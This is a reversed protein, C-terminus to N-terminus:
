KKNLEYWMKLFVGNTWGFGSQNDYEGGGGPIDPHVVDYKEMMKGSEFFVKQNLSIWRKAITKATEDFGYNKLGKYTSWQLPAWANPFDWQQDADILTTVVGGPFLFKSKIVQHCKEAQMQDAIGIFLPFIGALTWQASQTKTNIQYDFYYGKENSWFYKQIMEKRKEALKKFKLANPQDKQYSYTQSITLELHYMLANLDVPLFETTMITTMNRGDAFWRSSFDWGSACAARVDEFISADRKSAHLLEIDHKYSEPRPGPEEDWYRNLYENKEIEVVRNGSMYYQYEILMQPLYKLLISTDQKTGALLQVMHAFYPPQSRGLFYTRTGNPIFGYRNILGAFNDVINQMLDERHSYPMGLMAFYSDWYFSEKFRGGPIVHNYPLSILTSNEKQPAPLRTLDNWLWDLHRIMGLTDCQFPYFYQKVFKTLDFDPLTKQQQYILNITDPHVKPDMDSFTKQDPFIGQMQVDHFLQQMSKEIYMQASLYSSMTNIILILIFSKYM